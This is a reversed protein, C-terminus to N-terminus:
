RTMKRAMVAMFFETFKARENPTTRALMGRMKSMDGRGGSKGGGGRAWPPGGGRNGDGSEGNKEREEKGRKKLEKMDDKLEDWRDLERDIFENRANRDELELYEDVKRNLERRMMNWSRREVEKRQADSLDENAQKASMFLNWRDDVSMKKESIFSNMVQTNANVATAVELHDRYKMIGFVAAIIAATTLLVSIWLSKRKM